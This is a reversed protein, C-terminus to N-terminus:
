KEPIATVVTIKCSSADTPIFGTNLEVINITQKSAIQKYITRVSRGLFTGTESFLRSSHCYRLLFIQTM